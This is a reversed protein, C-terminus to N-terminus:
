NRIRKKVSRIGLAIVQWVAANLAITLFIFLADWKAGQFRNGVVGYVAVLGPLLLLYGLVSLRDPVFQNPVVLIVAAVQTCLFVIRARAKM